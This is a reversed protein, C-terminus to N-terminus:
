MRSSAAIRSRGPGRYLWPSAHSMACRCGAGCPLVGVRPAVRGSGFGVWLHNLHLAREDNGDVKLIRPPRKRGFQASNSASTSAAPTWIAPRTSVANASPQGPSGPRCRCPARSRAFRLPFQARRFHEHEVIQPRPLAGREFRHDVQRDDVAGGDDQVDKGLTRATAFSFQLDFERLQPVALRVEDAGTGFERPQAATDSRTSGTFRFELDVPAADGVADRREAIREFVHPTRPPGTACRSIRGRENREDAVGVDAFRRQQVPMDRAPPFPPTRRRGVTRWARGSAAGRRGRAPRKTRKASVTPNM